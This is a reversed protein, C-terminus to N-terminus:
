GLTTANLLCVGSMKFIMLLDLGSLQLDEVRLQKVM